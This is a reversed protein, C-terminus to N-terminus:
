GNGDGLVKNGKRLNCQLCLLQTNAYSHEGGKSLPIIHDLSPFTPDPWQTEASCTIGCRQCVWGDRAFVAIRDVNEVFARRKRARRKSALERVAHPNKQSWQQKMVKHLERNNERWQRM